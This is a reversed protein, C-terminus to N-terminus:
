KMSNFLTGRAAARLNKAKSALANKITYPDLFRILNDPAFFSDLWLEMQPPTWSAANMASTLHGLAEQLVPVSVGTKKGRMNACCVIFEARTFVTKGSLHTDDFNIEDTVWEALAKEKTKM